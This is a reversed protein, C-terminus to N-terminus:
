LAMLLASILKMLELKDRVEVNNMDFIGPKAKFGMIVVDRGRYKVTLTKREKSLEEGVEALLKLADSISKISKTVDSEMGKRLAKALRIVEKPNSINLIIEDRTITSSNGGVTLELSGEAILSQFKFLIEMLNKADMTVVM